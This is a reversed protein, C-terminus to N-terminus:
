RSPHEVAGRSECASGEPERASAVRARSLGTAIEQRKSAEIGIDINM